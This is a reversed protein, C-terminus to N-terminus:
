FFESFFGKIKGILGENERESDDEDYDDEDFDDDKRIVKSKGKSKSAESSEAAPKEKLLDAV